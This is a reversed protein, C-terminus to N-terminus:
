AGILRRLSQKARELVPAVPLAYQYGIGRQRYYANLAPFILERRLEDHFHQDQTMGANKGHLRLVGLEQPVSFVLGFTFAARTLFADPSIKLSTPLPFIKRLVTASFVLGTTTVFYSLNGTVKMDEFCDGSRLVRRYPTMVEGRKASLNHQMVGYEGALLQHCRVMTEIKEPRWYDDSDLFMVLEGKSIAFANNWAMAQGGNPQLLVRMRPDTYSKLISPSDDRSGDDVAILEFHPYTQSLVSDVAERLYPAYNYSSLIVSVLPTAPVAPQAELSM